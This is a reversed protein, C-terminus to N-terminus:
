SGRMCRLCCRVLIWRIRIVEERLLLQASHRFHWSHRALDGIFIFTDATTSALSCIHGHCVM